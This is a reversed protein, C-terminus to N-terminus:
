LGSGQFLGGGAQSYDVRCGQAIKDGAALFTLLDEVWGQKM